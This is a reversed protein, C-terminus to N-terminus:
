ASAPPGRALYGAAQAALDPAASTALRMAAMPEGSVPTIALAPADAQTLQDFVQCDQADHHQAFLGEFLHQQPAAAEQAHPVGLTPAPGHAHLVRHLLGLAQMLLLACLVAGALLRRPNGLTPRANM